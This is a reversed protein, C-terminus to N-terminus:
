QQERLDDFNGGDLGKLAQNCAGRRAFYNPHFQKLEVTVENIFSNYSGRLLPAKDPLIKRLHNIVEKHSLNPDSEKLMNACTRAFVEAGNNLNSEREEMGYMGCSALLLLTLIKNM